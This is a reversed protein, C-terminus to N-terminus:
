AEKAASFKVAKKAPIKISAGTAPNRGNRAKRTVVKFTGLGPLKITEGNTLAEDLAATVIGLAAEADGMKYGKYEGKEKISAILEKHTM